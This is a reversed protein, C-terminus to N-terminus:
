LGGEELPSPNYLLAWGNSPTFGINLLNSDYYTGGPANPPVPILQNITSVIIQPFNASYYISYGGNAIIIWESNPTFAISIIPQYITPPQQYITQIKAIVDQPFNTSWYANNGNNAIIVWNGDPTFAIQNITLKKQNITKLQNLADPPFNASSFYANTGYIIVWEGQPTFAISNISSKQQHLTALENLAASPLNNTVYGDTRNLIAWGGNPAFAITNPQEGQLTLNVLAQQADPPVGMGKEYALVKQSNLVIPCLTGIAISAGVFFRGGVRWIQRVLFNNSMNSELYIFAFIKPKKYLGRLFVTILCVM